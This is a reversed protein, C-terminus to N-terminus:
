LGLMAGISSWADDYSIAGAAALIATAVSTAIKKWHKKLFGM